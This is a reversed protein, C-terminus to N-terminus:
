ARRMGFPVHVVNGLVLVVTRDDVLWFFIVTRLSSLTELRPSYKSFCPGFTFSNPIILLHSSDCLNRCFCMYKTHSCRPDYKTIQATSRAHSSLCSNFSRTACWAITACYM